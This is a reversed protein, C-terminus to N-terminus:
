TVLLRVNSVFQWDQRCRERFGDAHRELQSKIHSRKRCDDRSLHIGALRCVARLATNKITRVCGGAFWRSQLLEQYVSLVRTRRPSEEGDPGDERLDSAAGSSRWHRVADDDDDDDDDDSPPFLFDREWDSM